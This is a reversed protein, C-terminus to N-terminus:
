GEVGEVGTRGIQANEGYQTNQQQLAQLWRQMMEQSAPSMEAIADPNEQQLQQWWQLRAGYNWRGSTDMQPMVGAKILTFNRKEEEIDRGQVEEATKLADLSIEPWMQHMVHRVVPSTDVIRERDMGMLVQSFSQTKEMLQKWDLNRPDLKLTIGFTGAIDERRLGQVDGSRTIGALLEDSAGDQAVEVMLAFLEKFQRLMLNVFAQRRETVDTEGNSIGFYALLEDKVQKRIEKASAPYAPPQMFAVNDNVGMPVVAFPELVVNRVRTGKALVPPLSGVIANDAMGDALRKGIGQSPACLAALGRGDALRRSKVERRFFAINWKGRRSRVIRKGFASGEAHSLVAVYRRTGGKGDPEAMYCWVINCWDKMDDITAASRENYFSAGKHRLTEEVWEEDWGETEQRERLQTESVWEDLFIPNANEFDTAERQFCFDEGYRLARLELGETAGRRALFECEGDEALAAIIKEADDQDAGYTEAIWLALTEMARAAEDGEDEGTAGDFARRVTFEADMRSAEGTAEMAAAYEEQLREASLTEVARDERRRWGVDMAAVCPTDVMFYRILALIEAYEKAGLNALEWELLRKLANARKEGEAGAGCAFEVECSGVAVLMLAALQELIEEGWRCRQDSAGEFPFAEERDTGHVTGDADQGDWVCYFAREAEKRDDFFDRAKDRWWNLETILRDREEEALPTETGIKKV